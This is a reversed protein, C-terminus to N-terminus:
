KFIQYLMLIVLTIPILLYALLMPNAFIQHKATIPSINKDYKKYQQKKIITLSFITALLMVITVVVYLITM